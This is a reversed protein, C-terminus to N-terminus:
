KSTWTQKREHEYRFGIHIFHKNPYYILQDYNKGSRIIKNYAEKLDMGLPVFDIALGHKHASTDSGGVMDNLTECRYWSNVKFPVGLYERFKELRSAAYKINEEAFDEPTNDIGERVATDSHTAEKWTFHKSLQEM